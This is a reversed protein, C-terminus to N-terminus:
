KKDGSLDSSGEQNKSIRITKIYGDEGYEIPEITYRTIASEEMVQELSSYGEIIVERETNIYFAYVKNILGKVQERSKNTGFYIEFQANFAPISSQKYTPEIYEMGGAYNQTLLIITGGVATMGAVALTVGVVAWKNLGKKKEYFKPNKKYYDKNNQNSEYNANENQESKIEM